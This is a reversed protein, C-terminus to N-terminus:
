ERGILFMVRDHDDDFSFYRDNAAAPCRRFFILHGAIASYRLDDDEDESIAVYTPDSELERIKRMLTRHHIIPWRWGVLYFVLLIAACLFRFWPPLAVMERPIFALPAIFMLVLM